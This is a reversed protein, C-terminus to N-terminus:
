RLAVLVADRHLRWVEAADAFGAARLGQRHFELPLTVGPHRHELV